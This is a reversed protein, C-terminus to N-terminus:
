IAARGADARLHRGRGRAFGRTGDPGKAYRAGDVVVGARSHRGIVSCKAEAVVRGAEDIRPELVVRCVVQEAEPPAAPSVAGYYGLGLPGIKFTFGLREGEFSSCPFFDGAFREVAPAVHGLRPAGAFGAFRSSGPGGNPDLRPDLRTVTTWGDDSQQSPPEPQCEFCEGTKLSRSPPPPTARPPPTGPPPSPPTAIPPRSPHARDPACRM